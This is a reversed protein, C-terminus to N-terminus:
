IIPKGQQTSYTKLQDLPISFRESITQLPIIDALSLADKIRQQQARQREEERGEQRGEERGEEIFMNKVKTEDYETMLMETVEMRHESLIPAMINQNICEKVALDIAEAVGMTKKHKKVRDVFYAYEWLPRCQEMLRQNHELNINLMTATWEYCDDQRSPNIFLDSLKLQKRDPMDEDGNYFVVYHPTPLKLPKSSFINLNHTEIYRDYMSTYYLLGRLPM